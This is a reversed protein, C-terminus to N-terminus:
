VRGYIGAMGSLRKILNGSLQEPLFRWTWNGRLTAPQNMRANEGLGLIDQMPIIVMDAVSMMALRILEMHVNKITVRNGVYESIRNREEPGIEKKFWGKITNNDHNGTYVVCNRIYNHPAYPYAPLDKGFAFLFVRMVPFGFIYM